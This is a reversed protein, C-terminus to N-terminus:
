AALPALQAYTPFEGGVRYSALLAELEPMQPALERLQAYTPFPAGLRYTSLLEALLRPAPTASVTSSSSM